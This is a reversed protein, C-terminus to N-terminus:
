NVITVYAQPVVEITAIGEISTYGIRVMNDALYDLILVNIGNYTAKMFKGRAKTPVGGIQTTFSTHGKYKPM